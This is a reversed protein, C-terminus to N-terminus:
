NKRWLHQHKYLFTKSVIHVDVTSSNACDEHNCVECMYDGRDAWSAHKIVLTFSQSSDITKYILQFTHEQRHYWRLIFENKYYHKATCAIMIKKGSLECSPSILEITVEPIGSFYCYESLSHM